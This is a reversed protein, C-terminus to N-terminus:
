VTYLIEGSICRSFVLIEHNISKEVHFNIVKWELRQSIKKTLRGFWANDDTTPEQVIKEIRVFWEKGQHTCMGASDM